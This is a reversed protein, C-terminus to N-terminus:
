IYIYINYTGFNAVSDRQLVIRFACIYFPTMIIHLNPNLETNLKYIFIRHLEIILRHLSIHVNDKITKLEKVYIVNM